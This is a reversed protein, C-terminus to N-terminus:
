HSMMKKPIPNTKNKNPNHTTPRSRYGWCSGSMHCLCIFSWSVGCVWKWSLCIFLWLINESWDSILRHSESCTSKHRRHLKYSLNIQNLLCFPDWCSLLLVDILYSLWRRHEVWCAVLLRVECTSKGIVVRTHLIDRFWCHLTGKSYYSVHQATVDYYALEFELQVILNM